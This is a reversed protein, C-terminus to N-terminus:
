SAALPIYDVQDGAPRAPDHPPRVLLANAQAMLALRASDQDAFPAILPLDEGAALTARLYHQRPGEAPLDHALKAKRLPADAPLGQMARILPQMFLVACVMASVPNGPLGLMAGKAMRGAM